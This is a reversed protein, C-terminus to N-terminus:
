ELELMMGGRGLQEGLGNSVGGSVCVHISTAPLNEGEWGCQYVCISVALLTEGERSCQFVYISVALLPCGERCHRNAHFRHNLGVRTETGAYGAIDMGLGM